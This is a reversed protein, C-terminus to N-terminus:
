SVLGFYSSVYMVAARHCGCEGVCVSSSSSALSDSSDSALVRDETVGKLCGTRGMGDVIDGGWVKSM